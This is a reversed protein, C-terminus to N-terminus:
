NFLKEQIKPNILDEGTWNPSSNWAVFSTWPFYQADSPATETQPTEAWHFSVDCAM